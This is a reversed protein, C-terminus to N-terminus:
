VDWTVRLIHCGGFRCILGPSGFQNEKALRATTLISSGNAITEILILVTTLTVVLLVWLMQQFIFQKPRM